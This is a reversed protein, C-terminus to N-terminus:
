EIKKIKGNKLRLLRQNNSGRFSLELNREALIFPGDVLVDIEQLLQRRLPALSAADPDLPHFFNPAPPLNKSQLEFPSPKTKKGMLQEYTFGSFAWVNWGLEQHAFRALEILPEPQLFPEGGSLTLGAQLEIESLEKKLDDLDVLFGADLNHTHPNHCAPCNRLCGQTWLVTRLGEGDVISDFQLPAALRIKM